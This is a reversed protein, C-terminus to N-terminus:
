QKQTTEFVACYFANSITTSTSGGMMFTGPGLLRMVLNTTKYLDPWGGAPAFDLYSVAYSTANSGGSLDIICYDPLTLYAVTFTVNTSAFEIGQARLDWTVAHTGNSGHLAAELQYPARASLASAASVYNSGTVNDTAVISLFPKNWDPLGSWNGGVDFTLDVKGDWPEHVTATVNSVSPKPLITFEVTRDGVLPPLMTVTMTATGSNVNNSCSIEYQNATLLDVGDLSVVVKPVVAKGTWPYGQPDIGNVFIEKFVATVTVDNTPMLFSTESASMDAFDVGDCYAWQVFAEGPQPDSATVTVVSGEAAPSNTTSGGEVTITYRRAGCPCLLGDDGYDHPETSGAAGCYRCLLTHDGGNDRYATYSHDGCVTLKVGESRCADMRNAADVPVTATEPSYARYSAPFTLDGSDTANQGHGIAQAGDGALATVAGGNVTVAGCAGQDAAQVFRYTDNAADKFYGGNLQWADGNKVTEGSGIRNLATLTTTAANPLYVFWSEDLGFSASTYFGGNAGDSVGDLDIAVCGNDDRNKLKATWNGGNQQLWLTRADGNVTVSKVFASEEIDDRYDLSLGIRVGVGDTKRTTTVGFNVNGIITSDLYIEVHYTYPGAGQTSEVVLCSLSHGRTVTDRFVTDTLYSELASTDTGKVVKLAIQNRVGDAELANLVAAKAESASQGRRITSVNLTEKEYLDGEVFSFSNGDPVRRVVHYRRSIANAVDGLVDEILLWQQGTAGGTRVITGTMADVASVYGGNDGGIGANGGDGTATLKGMNAGASQAWVTLSNTINNNVDVTIGARATLSANDKLILNVDGNVVIRTIDNVNVSGEVVYWGTDLTDQGNYQTCAATKSQSGPATPDIYSVDVAHAAMAAAMAAVFLLKAMLAKPKM